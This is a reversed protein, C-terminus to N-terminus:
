PIEAAKIIYVEYIYFWVCLRMQFIINGFHNQRRRGAFQFVHKILVCLLLIPCM